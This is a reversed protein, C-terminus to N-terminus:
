RARYGTVMFIGANYGSTDGTYGGDEVGGEAKCTFHVSCQLSLLCHGTYYVSHIECHGTYHV